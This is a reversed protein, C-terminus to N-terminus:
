KERGIRAYKSVSENMVKDTDQDDKWENICKNM